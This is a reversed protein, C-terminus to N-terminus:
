KGLWVTELPTDQRAATLAVDNRHLASLAQGSCELAKEQTNCDMSIHALMINKTRASVIRELLQATSVNSLHGERSMIRQKTGWPRNCAALMNMDHNSELVVTDCERLQYEVSSSAYGLDTAVGVRWEDVSIIYGVPDNADHPINFPTITFPGITFRGGAVFNAVQTIKPDKKRIGRTCPLTAYIPAELKQSCLRLGTMHDLHEHTVLIGQFEVDDLCPCEKIRRQTERCSFGADIMVAQRGYHVVTCNGKSGSGLITVGLPCREQVSAGNEEMM